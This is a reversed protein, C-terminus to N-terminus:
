LRDSERRLARLWQRFEYYEKICLKLTGFMLSVLRGLSVLLAVLVAVTYDFDVREMDIGTQIRTAVTFTV